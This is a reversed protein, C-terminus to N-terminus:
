DEHEHEHGDAEGTRLSNFWNVLIEKQEKSLKAEKHALTYSSLPMEGEEVLEAAEELKHDAKKSSYTGWVSFNMEERGENIHKKLMWSVPAIEAYWPYKTEYSHCDYCANNLITKVNEPPNIMSIFDDAKKYEPITKDIRIFQMLLFVIFGGIFIRKLWKRNKKM